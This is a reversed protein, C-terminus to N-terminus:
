LECTLIFGALYIQVQLAFSFMQASVHQEMAESRWRSVIGEDGLKEWWFSKERVASTLNDLNRELVTRPTPILRQRARRAEPSTRRAEFETFPSPFVPLDPTQM